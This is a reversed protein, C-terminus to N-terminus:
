RSLFATLWDDRHRDRRLGVDALMRDDAFHLDANVRARRRRLRILRLLAHVRRTFSPAPATAEPTRDLAIDTM